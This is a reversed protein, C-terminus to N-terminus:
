FSISSSYAEFGNEEISSTFECNFGESDAGVTISSIVTSNWTHAYFSCVIGNYYTFNYDYTCSGSWRYGIYSTGNKVYDQLLFITGGEPNANSANSTHKSNEFNQDYLYASYRNVNFATTGSTNRFYFGFADTGGVNGSSTDSIWSDNLWRGGTSITWQSTSSNYYIEPEYVDVDSADSCVSVSSTTRGKFLYVGYQELESLLELRHTGDSVTAELILKDVYDAPYADSSRASSIEAFKADMKDAFAKKEMSTVYFGSNECGTVTVAMTSVKFSLVFIIVLLICVLKRM